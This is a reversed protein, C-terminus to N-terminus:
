QTASTFQTTQHSISIASCAIQYNKSEKQSLIFSSESYLTSISEKWGKESNFSSNREKKKVFTSINSNCKIKHNDKSANKRSLM